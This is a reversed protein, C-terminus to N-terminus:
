SANIFAVVHAVVEPDRLLRRHGLGNTTVLLADPWASAIEAGDRWSTEPDDRDHVVLLPPTAAVRAVSPVEFEEWSAGLRREVETAFRQAVDATIGLAQEFMRRYALPSAMPAIFVARPVRWGARMALSAATCGGSHAVLGVVDFRRSLEVLVDAFDFFTSQRSGFRSAGSQGHAPADFAVVRFGGNVLPPVFSQMQAAFGGWGHLLVITPVNRMDPGWSWAAVGRGNVRLDIAAGTALFARTTDSLRPRPPTFWLWHAIRAAVGPAIACLARFAIKVLGPSTQAPALVVERANM